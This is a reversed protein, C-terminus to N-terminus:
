DIVTTMYDSPVEFMSEPVKNSVEVIDMVVDQKNIATAIRALKGSQFYLKLQTEATAYEECVIGGTESSGIYQLGETVIKELDNSKTVDWNLIRKNTHDLMYVKDDKVITGRDGSSMAISKGNVAYTTEVEFSEGNYVTTTRYKIMYKDSKLTRLFDTALHNELGTMDVAESKENLDKKASEETKQPAKEKFIIGKVYGFGVAALAILLVIILLRVPLKRKRTKGEGAEYKAKKRKPLKIKPTAIKPVAIKPISIKPVGIKPIKPTKLKM